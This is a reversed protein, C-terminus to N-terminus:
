INGRIPCLFVQHRKGKRVEKNPDRSLSMEKNEIKQYANPICYPIGSKKEKQSLNQSRLSISLLWV